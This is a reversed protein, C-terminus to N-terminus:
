RPTSRSAAAPQVRVHAPAPIEAPRVRVPAPIYESAASKPAPAVSRTGAEAPVVAAAPDSRHMSADFLHLVYPVSVFAVFGVVAMLMSARVWGRTLWGHTLVGRDDEGALWQIEDQLAAVEARLRAAEEELGALRAEVSSTGRSAGGSIRREASAM